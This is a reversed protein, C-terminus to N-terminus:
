WSSLRRVHAVVESRGIIHRPYVQVSVGDIKAFAKATKGGKDFLFQAVVGEVAAEIREGVALPVLDLAQEPFYSLIRMSGVIGVKLNHM